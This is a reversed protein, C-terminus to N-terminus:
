RPPHWLSAALGLVNEYAVTYRRVEAADDLYLSRTRTDICVVDGDSADAFRLIIFGGDMAEYAGAKFPVVQITVNSRKGMTLLHDLQAAMVEPGGVVRRLAAEDMIATLRPGDNGTITAQRLLRAEVRRTTEEEPETPQAAEFLARAYDATQLLGPILLTEFTHISAADGEFGLYISFQRPLLDDYRHWWDRQRSTAAMAVLLNIEDPETVGYLAALDRVDRTRGPGLRAGDEVGQLGVL